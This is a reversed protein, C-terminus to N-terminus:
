AARGRRGLRPAPLAVEFDPRSRNAVVYIVLMLAVAVVLSARSALGAPAETVPFVRGALLVLSLLLHWALSLAVGLLTGQAYLHGAGPSLLSLARFARERREDESQVELLKQNRAPGSVGDRVVFLHFCQTCLGAPAAGLHCRKCFPTGCKLCRMTFSRAGRWQRMLLWTLLFVVLFGAFRNWSARLLALADAGPAPRGALNKLGVGTERGAFKAWVLEPTLGLDVVANENRAEYKWLADYERTLRGALRNAQLRAEDAEQREFKQLHALSLNYFVTGVVDPGGADGTEKALKYRTIAAPFAQQAFELNALNNLAIRDKDDSRLIDRYVAAAEEYLGAKKYLQALLYQLDRDDAHQRLAGELDIVARRDAGGEVALVAARFLPNRTALTRERVGELVPGVLLAAAVIVASVAREVASAYAWLLAIWWFPLWGYGQFTVLPLLLLLSCIGVAFPRGRAMGFREELDHLLLTAHRLALVLGFVCATAFAALMSVAVALLLTYFRGRSTSGRALLGLVVDRAAPLMGFPGKRADTVALGFYADPLHPDVDVARQFEEEAGPRDGKDLRDLGRSVLALGLEELSRVNREIRAARIEEFIRKAREADGAAEAKRYAAWLSEFSNEPARVARVDIVREQAPGSSPLATLALLIAARASRV